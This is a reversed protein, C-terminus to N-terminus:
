NYGPNEPFNSWIKYKDGLTTMTEKWINNSHAMIQMPKVETVLWSNSKLENDLQGAQWGSYGLFFRIQSPHIEKAVIMDKIVDFDGGWYINGFVHESNPIIEGLTHLYHITNTSVPGGISVTANFAPFDEIVENISVELTKNLVFGISGDPTYETLLVLSRKFYTDQLFPEAVLVRGRLPEVKNYEIKFINFDLEM